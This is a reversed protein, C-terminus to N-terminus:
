CRTWRGIRGMPSVTDMERRDIVQIAVEADPGAGSLTLYESELTWRGAGVPSTFAGDARFETAAACDRNDTWRGILLARIESSPSAATARPGGEGAEAAPPAAENTANATAPDKGGAPAAEAAANAQNATSENADGAEHGGCASLALLAATAAVIMTRM